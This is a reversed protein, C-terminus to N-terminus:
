LIIYINRNAMHPLHTASVKFTAAEECGNAKRLKTKVTSINYCLFDIRFLSFWFYYVMKDAFTSSFRFHSFFRFDPAPM